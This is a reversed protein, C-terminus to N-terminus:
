ILSWGLQMLLSGDTVKNPDSTDMLLSMFAGTGLFLVVITFVDALFKLSIRM